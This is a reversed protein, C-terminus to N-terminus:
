SIVHLNLKSELPRKSSIEISSLYIILLILWSIQSAQNRWGLHQTSGEQIRRRALWWIAKVVGKLYQLSCEGPWHPRESGGDQSKLESLRLSGLSGGVFNNMATLGHETV